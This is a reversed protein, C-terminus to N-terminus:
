LMVLGYSHKLEMIIEHSWWWVHLGDHVLVDDHLAHSYQFQWEGWISGIQKQLCTPIYSCLSTQIIGSSVFTTLPLSLVWIGKIGLMRRTRWWKDATNVKLLVSAHGNPLCSCSAPYPLWLVLTYVKMSGALHCSIALALWQSLRFKPLLLSLANLPLLRSALLTLWPPWPLAGTESFRLHNTMCKLLHSEITGGYCQSSCSITVTM